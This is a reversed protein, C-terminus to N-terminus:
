HLSEAVVAAYDGYIGGRDTGQGRVKSIDVQYCLIAQDKWINSSSIDPLAFNLNRRADNGKATNDAERAVM